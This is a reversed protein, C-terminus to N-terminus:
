RRWPNEKLHWGKSSHVIREQKRLAQLRRDVIRWGTASDDKALEHALSDVSKSSVIKTFNSAGARIADLIARDLRSYDHRPKM